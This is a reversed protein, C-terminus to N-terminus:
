AERAGLVSFQELILYPIVAKSNIYHTDGYRWIEKLGVERRGNCGDRYPRVDRNKDNRCFSPRIFKGVLIQIQKLDLPQMIKLSKAQGAQGSILNNTLKNTDTAM